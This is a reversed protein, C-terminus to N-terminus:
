ILRGRNQLRVSQWLLWCQLIRLSATRRDCGKGIRKLKGLADEGRLTGFMAPNLSCAALTRVIHDFYHCKPRLRWLWLGLQKSIVCLAQLSLLCLRGSQLARGRETEDLSIGAEDLCNLFDALGWCCTAVLKQFDGTRCVRETKYAVFMILTKCAKAKWTTSLEPYAHSSEARGLARLSLRNGSPRKLGHSRCWEHLEDDVRALQEQPSGDGLLSMNVMSILASSCVDRGFGLLVCHDIDRHSM